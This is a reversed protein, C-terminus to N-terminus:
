KSAQEAVEELEAWRAYAAELETQASDRQQQLTAVEPSTGGAYLAPDELRRDVAAVREELQQIRDPLAALEERERTSLRRVEGAASQRAARQPRPTPRAARATHEARLRDLLDSLAGAHHRVGGSGDLHLIRTAVRDLFYRDHSVVLVTGAFAVLAEELVRLSMLDLDNTPEDLLLVNGGASLLKALQVRNREGGSLSGVRTRMLAGSFLMSDLFSEVRLARGGVTVYDNAGAIEELVTKDPDLGSRAQDIGAFVVTPGISVAGEDPQLAGACLRLLTTKGAGNPGVIGLREGRGLELDLGRLVPRDAFSKTLGRVELVRDGLRPGDPIRFALEADDAEPAAARLAEYRGIRAKAKTTRAPPGRRMWEAERRLLNRRTAERAQERDLRAARALLFEAYGGEYDFLRGRDLEVIRQVVRDLFYRDHTVMVLASPSDVLWDELWETVGADLHNTPEDLLLLDPQSLLARALAVRRREGGSLDGCRAASDRLGVAGVVEEIRHEVDHGGLQELREDLAQQRDLLRRLAAGELDEAALADHVRSLDALVDSRGQLGAVVAEGVTSQADLAPEQPLHAIRLDRRTTRQGADPQVVGAAIGLLTSKGCGNPGLLGVREGPQVVLALQRLLQRDGYTLDVDQLTLLAM